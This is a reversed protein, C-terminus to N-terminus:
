LTHSFLRDFEARIIEVCECAFAELGEQDLIKILGRSHKIFGKGSLDKLATTVGARRIGLVESIYDHTLHFESSKTRQQCEVLWRALRVDSVHYRQCFVSQSIQTLYAQAYRLLVEQFRGCRKFEERAADREMMIGTSEVQVVARRNHAVGDGLVVPLGAAGERGVMAIEISEGSRSTTVVSVIGDAPFYVRRILEDAHYVVEGVPLTVPRLHPSLREREEATLSNLLRNETDQAPDPFSM